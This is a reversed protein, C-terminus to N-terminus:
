YLQLGDPSILFHSWCLLKRTFNVFNKLVDIKYLMPLRSSRGQLSKDLYKQRCGNKRLSETKKVIQKTQQRWSTDQPYVAFSINKFNLDGSSWFICKRCEKKTCFCLKYTTSLCLKKQSYWSLIGGNQWTQKYKRQRCSCCNKNSNQLKM